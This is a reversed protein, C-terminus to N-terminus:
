RLQVCTSIISRSKPAMNSSSTRDKFTPVVNSGSLHKYQSLCIYVSFSSGPRKHACHMSVSRVCAQLAAIVPTKQVTVTTEAATEEERGLERREKMRGRGRERPRGERNRGEKRGEREREKGKEKREERREKRGGERGNKEKKM